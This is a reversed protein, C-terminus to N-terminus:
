DYRSAFCLLAVCLTDSSSAALSRYGLSPAARYLGSNMMDRCAQRFASGRAVTLLSLGLPWAQRTGLSHKRGFVLLPKRCVRCSLVCIVDCAIVNVDYSVYKHLLIMNKWKRKSCHRLRRLTYCFIFALIDEVVPDRSIFTYLKADQLFIKIARERIM